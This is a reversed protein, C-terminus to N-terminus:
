PEAATQCLAFLRTVAQRPLAFGGELLLRLLPGRAFATARTRGSGANDLAVGCELRQVPDLWALEYGEVVRAVVITGEAGPRRVLGPGASRVVHWRAGEALGRRDPRVGSYGPWWDPLNYPEGVLEWVDRRDAVLERTAASM